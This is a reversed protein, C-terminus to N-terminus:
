GYIKIIGIVIAIFFMLMATFCITEMCQSQWKPFKIGIIAPVAIGLACIIFLSYDFLIMM